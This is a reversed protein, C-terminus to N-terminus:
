LSGDKVTLDTQIVSSVMSDIWATLVRHEIWSLFFFYLSFSSLTLFKYMSIQRPGQLRDLIDMNSARSYSLSLFFSLLYNSLFLLFLLFSLSSFRSLFFIRYFTGGPSRDPDSLLGHLRDLSDMSPARGDPM